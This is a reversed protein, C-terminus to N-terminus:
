LVEAGAIIEILEKTIHAQRTRNYQIRLKKMMEKANRTANDMAIMRSSEESAKSQLVAIMLQATLNSRILDGLLEQADPEVGYLASSLETEREVMNEQFPILSRHRIEKRLASWFRTFVVSCSDIEGKQFWAIIKQQINLVDFYLDKFNLSCKYMSLDQLSAPFSDFLKKGIFLLKVEKGQSKLTEIEERVKVSLNSHFSGCLGRDGSIVILLHKSQNPRGKMLDPVKDKLSLEKYVKWVLTSIGEMYPLAKAFSHQTKKLNSTAVMRMANTIKQTSVISNIRQRLLKLSPM